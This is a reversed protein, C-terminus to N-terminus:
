GNCIECAITNITRIWLFSTEQMLKSIREMSLLDNENGIGNVMRILNELLLVSGEPLAYM